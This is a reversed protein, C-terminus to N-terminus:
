MGSVGDVVWDWKSYLFNDDLTEGEKVRVEGKSDKIPGVFPNYNEKMMKEKVADLKAQVDSPVKDGWKGTDVGEGMGLLVTRDGKWTGDLLSQVESKYFPGWDLLVTGVYADPGFKRMDTNWMAAWVGREQAVQLYSPTDMIGFLVDCGGDILTTAAQREKAPDFWSNIMLVQTTAEPNVSKAGLQFANVGTYAAPVPFAGVYCLKNTKTLLGAAMGLLYSPQWHKVYASIMNEAPRHGNVEIFKVEPHQDSVKYLFDAFEGSTIIMKAGDNVFQQITKTVEDSFPANEVTATKVMPFAAEVAQRGQDHSWTWGEDSVPGVHIFPVLTQEVPKETPPPQTPAPAPPQTPAPAPPQTPAPTACACLVISIMTLMLIPVLWSRRM